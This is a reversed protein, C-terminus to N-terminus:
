YSSVIEWFWQIIQDGPNYGSYDVNKKLDEFDISPVGSILLELENAEFFAICEAPIIEHFGEL